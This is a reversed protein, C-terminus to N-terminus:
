AEELHSPRVPQPHCIADNWLPVAVTVMAVGFVFQQTVEYDFLFVSIVCSLVLSVSTSLTKLINDAYKLVVAVLIGGAAQNFAVVWVLSTYGYFFGKELVRGWDASLLAVCSSALGWAGLLLSRLWFASAEQQMIEMYVGSFGSLLCAAFVCTLGLLPQQTPQTPELDASSTSAIPTATASATASSHVAARATEQLQVLVVGFFLLGLSLWQRRSVHKGRMAIAFFVSAVIKLQYTVQYVAADLNSVAVFLLNNQIAYLLAPLGLRAAPVWVGCVRMATQDSENLIGAAAATASGARVTVMALCVLLKIAEQVVVVTSSLYMPGTAIRTYRILLVGLSNQLVLFVLMWYKLPIGCIASSFLSTHRDM